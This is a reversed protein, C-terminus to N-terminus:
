AGPAIVITISGAYSGSVLLDTANNTAFGSATIVVNGSGNTLRDGIADGVLPSATTANSKNVTGGLTSLAVNATYDISNDYGTPATAVNALPQADISILPAASTCLVTVAEVATNFDTDLGTRLTGAATALEGFAVSDSFTGTAGPNVFCKPAVSGSLNITGTVSQAAAPTTLAAASAALAVFAFKKM